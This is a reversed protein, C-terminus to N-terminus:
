IKWLEQKTYSSRVLGFSTYMDHLLVVADPHANQFDIAKQRLQVNYDEISIKLGGEGWYGPSAHMPPVTAIRCDAKAGSRENLRAWRDHLSLSSSFLPRSIMCVVRM